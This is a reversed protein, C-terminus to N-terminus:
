ALRYPIRATAEVAVTLVRALRSTFVPRGRGARHSLRTRSRATGTTRTTRVTRAPATRAAKTVV